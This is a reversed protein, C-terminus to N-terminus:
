SPAQTCKENIGSLLVDELVDHFLTLFILLGDHIFDLTFKFELVFSFAFVINDLRRFFEDLLVSGFLSRISM